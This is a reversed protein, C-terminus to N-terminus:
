MDVLIKMRRGARLEDFSKELDDLSTHDVWGTTDYAGAAMNAIVAEYDAALYVLSGIVSVEQLLLSTPN